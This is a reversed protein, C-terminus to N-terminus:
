IMGSTTIKRRGCLHAIPTAVPEVGLTGFPQKVTMSQGRDAIFRNCVNILMQVFFRKICNLMFFRFSRAFRKAMDALDQLIGCRKAEIDIHLGCHFRSGQEAFLGM